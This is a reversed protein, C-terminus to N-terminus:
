RIGRLREVTDLILRDRQDGGQRLLYAPHYISLVPINTWGANYTLDHCDLLSGMSGFRGTVYWTAYKGVTVIVNPQIKAIQALLYPKCAVLEDPKPDRNDPPRCKVVNTIYVTDRAVGAKELLRTLLHGSQGVFPEGKLDEQAGPAEGVVLSDADTPGVGVVINTRSEHLRCKTCGPLEDLVSV